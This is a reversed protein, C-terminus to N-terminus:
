HGVFIMVFLQTTFLSCLMYVDGNDKSSCDSPTIMTVQDMTDAGFGMFEAVDEAQKRQIGEVIDVPMTMLAEPNEEAVEEINM